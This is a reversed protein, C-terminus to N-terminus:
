LIMAFQKVFVVFCTIRYGVPYLAHAPSTVNGFGVSVRNNGVPM